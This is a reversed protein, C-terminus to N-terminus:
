CRQPAKRIAGGSLQTTSSACNSRPSRIAKVPPPRKKQHCAPHALAAGIGVSARMIPAEAPDSDATQALHPTSMSRAKSTASPRHSFSPTKSRGSPRAPVHPPITRVHSSTNSGNSACSRHRPLTCTRTVRSLSRPTSDETTLPHGVGNARSRTLSKRSRASRISAKIADTWMGSKMSPFNKASNRPALYMSPEKRAAGPSKARGAGGEVGGSEGADSM